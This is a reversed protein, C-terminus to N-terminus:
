LVACVCLRARENVDMLCTACDFISLSFASIKHTIVTAPKDPKDVRSELKFWADCQKSAGFWALPLRVEGLFQTKLLDKDRVAVIVFAHTADCDLAFTENWVPAVTKKQQKTKHVQQRGLVCVVYRQSMTNDYHYNM